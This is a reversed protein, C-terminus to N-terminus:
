SVVGTVDAQTNQILTHASKSDGPHAAYWANAERFQYEGNRQRERNRNLMPEFIPERSPFHHQSVWGQAQEAAAASEGGAGGAPATPDPGCRLRLQGRGNLRVEYVSIVDGQQLEGVIESDYAFTERVTVRAAGVLKYFVVEEGGGGGCAGSGDGESGDDSGSMAVAATEADAAPQGEAKTPPTPPPLPQEFRRRIERFATEAAALRAAAAPDDPATFPPHATDPCSAAEKSNHAAPGATQLDALDKRKEEARRRWEQKEKVKRAALSAERRQKLADQQVRWLRVHERQRSREEAERLKESETKESEPPREPMTRPEVSAARCRGASGQRRQGFGVASVGEAPTGDAARCTPFLRENVVPAPRNRRRELLRKAADNAVRARDLQHQHQERQQERWAAVATKKKETELHLKRQMHRCPCRCTNQPGRLVSPPGACYLPPGALVWRRREEDSERSRDAAALRAAQDEKWAALKERQAHRYDPDADHRPPPSTAPRTSDAHASSRLMIPGTRRMRRDM